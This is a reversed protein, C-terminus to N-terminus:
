NSRGLSKAYAAQLARTLPGTEGNGIPRGDVAVLPRLGILSNTLIAEAATFLRQPEVKAERVPIGRKRALKIVTARTIGPLAGQRVGPTVLKGEEVLFLNAASAGALAGATNLLLAEYAGKATAEQRALINDLYNLSKIRVSPSHENRRHASIAAALSAPATGVRAATILLTPNPSEPPLLGRLGTGRTLTIRLAADENELSNAALTARAAAEISANGLSVPIGLLTAGERMRALHESLGVIGGGRALLTEFVGDSLLFGRDRPDIRAEHAPYLRGNLWVKM